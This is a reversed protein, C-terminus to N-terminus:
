LPNYTLINFSDIFRTLSLINDVRLLRAALKGWRAAKQVGGTAPFSPVGPLEVGEVDLGGTVVIVGAAAEL